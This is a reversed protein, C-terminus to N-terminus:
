AAGTKRNRTPTALHLRWLDPWWVYVRHTDLTCYGDVVADRDGVLVPTLDGGCTEGTERGDRDKLARPCAPHEQHRWRKRCRTCQDRFTVPELWKRVTRESRGQVKLTAIAEALPVYRAAKEHRLQQAHARRFGDDDYFAKCATCKWRDADTDSAYVPEPPAVTRCWRDPCQTHATTTPELTGGCPEDKGAPHSCTKATSPATTRRCKACRMAENLTTTCIRCTWAVLYRAAHVRILPKPDTCTPNNCVVRSRDPRNGAHVISELHRRARNIDRAFHTWNSPDHTAIWNLQHRLFQAETNITPIHDWVADVAWRYQESWYRLTQLAPADEEDEETLLDPRASDFGLVVVGDVLATTLGFAAARETWAREALENRRELTTTDGAPALAIMARGGPLSTGDVQARSDHVAQTLLQTSCTLIETLDRAVKITPDVATMLPQGEHRPTPHTTM